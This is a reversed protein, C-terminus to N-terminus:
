GVVGPVVGAVRPVVGVVKPVVGVVRPVVGVRRPVVGVLPNAYTPGAGGVPMCCVTWPLRLASGDSALPPEM